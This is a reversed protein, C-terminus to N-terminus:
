RWFIMRKHWPFKRITPLNQIRILSQKSEDYQTNGDGKPSKYIRKYGLSDKWWWTGGDYYPISYFVCIDGNYDMTIWNYNKTDILYVKGKYLKHKM